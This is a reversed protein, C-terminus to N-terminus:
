RWTSNWICVWIFFSCLYCSLVRIGLVWYTECLAASFAGALIPTYLNPQIHCQPMIMANPIIKAAGGGETHHRMPTSKGPLRIWIRVGASGVTPSCGATKGRWSKSIQVWGIPTARGSGSCSWWSPETHLHCNSVTPDASMNPNWITLLNKM